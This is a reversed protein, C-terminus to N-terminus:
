NEHIHLHSFQCINDNLYLATDYCYTPVKKAVYPSYATTHSYNQLYIGKMKSYKEWFAWPNM